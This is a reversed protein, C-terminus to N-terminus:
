EDDELICRVHDADIQVYETGEIKIGHAQIKDFNVVDGVKCPNPAFWGYDSYKGPGAAVVKGESPLPGGRPIILGFSTVKDEKDDLTLILYNNKAEFSM